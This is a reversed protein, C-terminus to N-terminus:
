ITQTFIVSQSNWEKINAHFQKLLALPALVFSLILVDFLGVSLWRSSLLAFTVALILFIILRIYPM